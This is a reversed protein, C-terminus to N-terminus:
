QSYKRLHLSGIQVPFYKEGKKGEFIALVVIQFLRQLQALFFLLVPDLGHFLVILERKGLIPLSIHLIYDRTRRVLAM